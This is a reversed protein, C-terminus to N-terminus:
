NELNYFPDIPKGDMSSDVHGALLFTKYMLILTKQYSMTKSLFTELTLKEKTIYSKPTIESNSSSATTPNGGEADDVEPIHRTSFNSLHYAYNKMLIIADNWNKDGVDPTSHRWFDVEDMAIIPKKESGENSSIDPFDSWVKALRSFLKDIEVQYLAICKLSEEPKLFKRKFSELPSLTAKPIIPSSQAGQSEKKGFLNTVIEIPPLDFHPIPAEQDVGQVESINCMKLAPDEGNEIAAINRKGNTRYSPSQRVFLAFAIMSIMFISSIKIALFATQEQSSYKKKM